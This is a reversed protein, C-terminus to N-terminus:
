ETEKAIEQVNSPRFTPNSDHRKGTKLSWRTALLM